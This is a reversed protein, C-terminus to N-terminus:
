EEPNVGYISFRLEVGWDVMLRLLETSISGYLWGTEGSAFGVDAVKKRCDKFLKRNAEDLKDLLEFFMHLTVELGGDGVEGRPLIEFYLHYAGESFEDRLVAINSQLRQVLPVLSFDAVLEFDINNFHPSM